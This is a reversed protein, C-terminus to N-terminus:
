EQTLIIQTGVPCRTFNNMIWEEAYDGPKWCGIRRKDILVMGKKPENMYVYLGDITKYMGAVFVGEEEKENIVEAKM